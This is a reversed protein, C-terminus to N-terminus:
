LSNMQAIAEQLKKLPQSLPLESGDTMVVSNAEGQPTNVKEIGALQALHSRSLRFFGFPALRKEMSSMTERHIHTKGSRHIIVYNGASEIRDIERVPVFFLSDGDRVPLRFDRQRALHGILAPPLSPSKDRQALARDLSAHFRQASFPKLLYDLAAVEFAEIAYDDYATAFIVGPKPHNEPLAALVEFGTMVPMQIDLFVLDIEAKLLTELTSGGDTCEAVIECDTRQSFLRALRKRAPAEDDAILIRTNM